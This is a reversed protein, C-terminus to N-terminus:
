ILQDINLKLIPIPVSNPRTAKSVSSIDSIYKTDEEATCPTLTINFINRNRLYNSYPTKGNPIKQEVSKGINVYFTNLADVIEVPNTTAKGNEVIKDINTTSKQIRKNPEQYREM